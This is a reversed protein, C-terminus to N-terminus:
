LLNKIKGLLRQSEESNIRDFNSFRSGLQSTKIERLFLSLIKSLEDPKLCLNDDYVEINELSDQTLRSEKGFDEFHFSCARSNFSIFINSRIFADIIAV